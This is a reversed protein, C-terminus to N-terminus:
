GENTSVKLSKKLLLITMSFCTIFVIASKFINVLLINRQQKVMGGMLYERETSRLAIDYVFKYEEVLSYDFILLASAIGIILFFFSSLLYILGKM